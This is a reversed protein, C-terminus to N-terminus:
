VAGSSPWTYHFSRLTSTLSHVGKAIDAAPEKKILVRAILLAAEKMELEAAGRRTLEQVGLRIGHTGQEKPLTCATTIIDASELQKALEERDGIKGVKLLVTHSQSYRGDVQVCELGLKALESGLSQANVIIQDMYAPGFNKM